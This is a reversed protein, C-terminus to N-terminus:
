RSGKENESLDTLSQFQSARIMQALVGFVLLGLVTSLAFMVSQILILSAIGSFEGSWVSAVGIFLGYVCGLVAAGLFLVFIRTLIRPPNTLLESIGKEVLASKGFRSERSVDNEPISIDLSVIEDTSAALLALIPSAGFMPHTAMVRAVLQPVVAFESQNREFKVGLLRLIFTLSRVGIESFLARSYNTRRGVVVKRTVGSVRVMRVADNATHQGDSDMFLIVDCDLCRRLGSMQAMTKGFNRPHRVPAFEVRDSWEANQLIEIQSWTGDTSGDDVVAVKLRTGPLVLLANIVEVIVSALLPEENFAPIVVGILGDEELFHNGEGSM